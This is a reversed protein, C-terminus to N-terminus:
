EEGKKRRLRGVACHGRFLRKEQKGNLANGGLHAIPADQPHAKSVSPQGFLGCLHSVDIVKVVFSM